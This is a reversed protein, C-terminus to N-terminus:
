GAVLDQEHTDPHEEEESSIEYTRVTHLLIPRGQHYNNGITTTHISITFDNCEHYMTRMIYLIEVIGM